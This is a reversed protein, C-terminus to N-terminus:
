EMVMRSLPRGELAWQHMSGDYVSVNGNGLLEHFAFWLGSAWQGSNCYTITGADPDIGLAEAMQRIDEAETFLLPPRDTALLENPFLRAGPIHGRGRVYSPKHIGLYQGPGRADVLVIADDKLAAAVAESDAHIAANVEGAQWNGAAIAPDDLTAPREEVLWQATGGNLIAVRGHGFYKIQWYLRTAMTLDSISMGGHVIVIVDDRNGGWSQMLKTFEEKTPLLYRVDRDDIERDTRISDFDVLAAGPIHAGPTEVRLDGTFRKRVLVARRTFSEVDDRVDLLKVQALNAALWDTEVVPGPLELGFATRVPLAVALLCLCTFFFRKITM